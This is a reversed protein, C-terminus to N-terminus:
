IQPVPDPREFVLGRSRSFTSLRWGEKALQCVYDAFDPGHKWDALEQGDIYRVRLPSSSVYDAFDLVLQMTQPM